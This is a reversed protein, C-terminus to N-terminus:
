GPPLLLESSNGCVHGSSTGPFTWESAPLAQPEWPRLLTRRPLGHRARLEAYLRQLGAGYAECPATSYGRLCLTRGAAAPDGGDFYPLASGFHGTLIRWYDLAGDLPTPYSRFRVRQVAWREEGRLDRERVRRLHWSGRWKRSIVANGLNNEICTAGRSIEHAVHAWAVLWREPGPYVGYLERHAEGLLRGIQENDLPTAEGLPGPADDETLAPPSREPAAAQTPVPTSLIPEASAQLPAEAAFTFNSGIGPLPLLAPVQPGSIPSPTKTAAGWAGGLLGFALLLRTPHALVRFFM